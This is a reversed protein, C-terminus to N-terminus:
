FFSYSICYDPSGCIQCFYKGHGYRLTKSFMPFHPSEVDISLKKTTAFSMCMHYLKPAFNTFHCSQYFKMVKPWKTMNRSKETVMKM